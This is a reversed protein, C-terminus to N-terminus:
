RRAKLYLPLPLVRHNQIHARHSQDAGRARANGECSRVQQQRRQIELGSFAHAVKHASLRRPLSVKLHQKIDPSIKSEFKVKEFYIASMDLLEHLNSVYKDISLRQGM